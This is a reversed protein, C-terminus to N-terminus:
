TSSLYELQCEVGDGVIMKNTAHKSMNCTKNSSRLNGVIDATCESSAPISGGGVEINSDRNLVCTEM